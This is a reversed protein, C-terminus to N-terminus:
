AATAPAELPCSKYKSGDQKLPSRIEHELTIIPGAEPCDPDVIDRVRFM